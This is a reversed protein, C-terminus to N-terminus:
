FSLHYAKHFRTFETSMEPLLNIATLIKLPLMVLGPCSVTVPLAPAWPNALAEPLFSHNVGPIDAQSCKKSFSLSKLTSSM